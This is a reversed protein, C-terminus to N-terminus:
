EAGFKSISLFENNPGVDALVIKPVMAFFSKFQDITELVYLFNAATYFKVFVQKQDVIARLFKKLHRKLPAIEDESFILVGNGDNIIEWLTDEAGYEFQTIDILYPAVDICEEYIAGDFLCINKLYLAEMIHVLNLVKSADVVLYSYRIQGRQNLLDSMNSVQFEERQIM